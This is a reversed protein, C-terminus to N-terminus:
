NFQDGDESGLDDLPENCDSHSDDRAPRGGPDVTPEDGPDVTPEDSEQGLTLDSEAAEGVDSDDISDRQDSDRDGFASDRLVDPDGERLADGVPSERLWLPVIGLMFLWFLMVGPSTNESPWIPFQLGSTPAVADLRRWFVIQFTLAIPISIAFRSLAECHRPLLPRIWFALVAALVIVAPLAQWGVLLAPIALIVILDILRVTSKGLPDLKPDATPCFGRALYRGLATAAVLATIVRIIADVYRGNPRWDEGVDMQWPVIMLSPFILIPIATVALAFASLNGPIRNGDLRILGVAWCMALGVIHYVITILVFPDLVPMWLPGAVGQDQRPLCSRYVEAVAVVTLSLGVVVEVLPYRPSIPLQCTGCRGRLALWGLVPINDRAKLQSLCRPCHSRGNIAEGRPMRWAVVNLFSGVSSAVWFSWVVIVADVTRPLYLDAATLYSSTRAQLYSAGVIYGAGLLLIAAAVCWLFYRIRPNRNRLASIETLNWLSARGLYRLDVDILICGNALFCSM